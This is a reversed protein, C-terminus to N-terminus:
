PSRRSLGGSPIEFWRPVSLDATTTTRTPTQALKAFGHYKALYALSPAPRVNQNSFGIAGVVILSATRQRDWDLQRAGPGFGRESFGAFSGDAAKPIEDALENVNELGGCAGDLEAMRSRISGRLYWELLENRNQRALRPRQSISCSM